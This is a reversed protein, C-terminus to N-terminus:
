RRQLPRRDSAAVQHLRRGTEAMRSRGQHARQRKALARRHSCARARVPLQRLRARVRRGGIAHHISRSRDSAVPPGQRLHHETRYAGAARVVHGDVLPRFARVRQLPFIRTGCRGASLPLRVGLAYALALGLITGFIVIAGTWRLLVEHFYRWTRGAPQILTGATDNLLEVRGEIGRSPKLLMRENVASAEPDVIRNQQAHAAGGFAFVLLGCAALLGCLFLRTAELPAM